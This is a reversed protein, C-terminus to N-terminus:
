PTIKNWRVQDSDSRFYMTHNNLKVATYSLLFPAAEEDTSPFIEVVVDPQLQGISYEYRWKSHGPRMDLIDQRSPQSPNGMLDLRVPMNAIRSDMKGFLDVGPREAFYIIGGAATVAIRADPRTVERLILGDRAYRQSGPVFFSPRTLLAYQLAGGSPDKLAALLNGENKYRDATLLTLIALLVIGIRGAYALPLALLKIKKGLFRAILDMWYWCAASFLLWFFPMGLAIFRNAGGRHEWADGGVLVSYAFQGLLILVPLLWRKDRKFILVSFAILYVQWHMGDIFDVLTYWGRLLRYNLPMGSMKLFYTTPLWEGYYAHRLLTQGGLFFLLSALGCAFHKWRNHRDFLWLWGLIVLFPVSMDQRILTSIGILVYLGPIVRGEDLSRLALWVGAATILLLASVETGLLSWNSLPYYFATLFVALLAPLPGDPNLRKAIKYVFLLTALLFLAGAIMVPLSMLRQPIPLLHFGSMLLVWLPNSFGEIREAGPYWVLGHGSALTRAYTMSIMADDFLVAFTQGGVMFLSQCIFRLAYAGYAFLILILFVTQITKKM